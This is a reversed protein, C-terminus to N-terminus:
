ETRWIPKTGGMGSCTRFAIFKGLFCQSDGPNEESWRERVSLTSYAMGRHRDGESHHQKIKTVNSKHVTVPCFPTTM